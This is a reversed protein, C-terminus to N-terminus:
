EFLSSVKVTVSARFGATCVVRLNKTDAHWSAVDRFGNKVYFALNEDCSEDRQIGCSIWYVLERGTQRRQEKATRHLAIQAVNKNAIADRKNDQIKQLTLGDTTMMHCGIVLKLMNSGHAQRRYDRDTMMYLLQADPHKDQIQLHYLLFGVVKTGVLALVGRTDYVGRISKAAEVANRQFQYEDSPYPFQAQVLPPIALNLHRYVANHYQGNRKCLKLVYKIHDQDRVDM